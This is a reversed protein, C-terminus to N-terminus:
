SWGAHSSAPPSPVPAPFRLPPAALSRVDYAEQIHKFREECKFKADEDMMVAGCKDPHYKLCADRYAARGVWGTMRLKNGGADRERGTYLLVGGGGWAGDKIQKETCLYREPLGLIMYNDYAVVPEGDEGKKKTKRPKCMAEWEEENFVATKSPSPPVDSFDLDEYTLESDV